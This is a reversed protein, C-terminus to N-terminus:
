QSIVSSKFFDDKKQGVFVGQLIGELLVWLGLYRIVEEVEICFFMGRLFVKEM